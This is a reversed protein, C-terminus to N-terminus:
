RGTSQGNKGPERRTASGTSLVLTEHLEDLSAAYRGPPLLGTVPDLEPMCNLIRPGGEDKIPEVISATIGTMTLQIM